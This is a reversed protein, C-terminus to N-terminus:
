RERQRTRVRRCKPTRRRSWRGQRDRRHIRGDREGMPRRRQRFKWRQRKPRNRYSHQRPQPDKSYSREPRGIGRYTRRISRHLRFYLHLHRLSNWSDDGMSIVGTGHHGDSHHWTGDSTNILLTGSSFALDTLGTDGFISLSGPQFGSVDITGMSVTGNSVFTVRGGGGDRDAEAALGSAELTGNNTISDGKLRISGGSGSGGGKNKNTTDGGNVSIKAGASITLTGSGDAALEIAGGGSGAGRSDGGGGGSGGLLHTVARDGYTLGHTTLQNMNTWGYGGYGAGGGDNDETRDKGKGPGHGDADRDGGDWGGLRGIGGIANTPNVGGDAVLSTSITIDGHNRTKLSLANTGQLTVIVSSSLNIRDATFTCIKYPYDTGDDTTYTHNSFVGALFSGDTHNITGLDTDITLGGSTFVLETVQPRLIKVTGDSGHRDGASQGGTATVNANLASEHNILSSVAEIFIRGGGGGSAGGGGGDNSDTDGQDIQTPGNGGNANINVGANIVIRDGKLYIAGGSGSAGSQSSENSNNSNNGNRGGKGGIANINGGLTLTGSSIIKISGGGTGGSAYQGGGGGSGGLLHTIDVDGYTLGGAPVAYQTGWGTTIGIVEARAGTGGYGGGGPERGSNIGDPQPDYQGAWPRGGGIFSGSTLNAPGGGSGTDVNNWRNGGHGGGLKGMLDQLAPDGAINRNQGDMGNLDLAPLITIDGISTIEVPNSGTLNVIVGDGIHVSDFTYKAVDYSITNGQLDVYTSNVLEGSGGTGDNQFWKPTPGDTDFTLTGTNVDIKKEAVFSATVDSWDEGLSNKGYVRYYYTNGPLLGSVTTENSDDIEEAHEWLLTDEGGDVSGWYLTLAVGNYQVSFDPGVNKYPHGPDLTGNLDWKHALYGEVLQRDSDTFGSNYVLVESVRLGSIKDPTGATDVRGGLVVPSNPASVLGPIGDDTDNVNTKQVGDGFLKRTTGDWVFSWLRKAVPDYDAPTSDTASTGRLITRVKTNNEKGFVWGQGDDGNKSLIADNDDFTMGEIVMFFTLKEWEDFTSKSNEVLLIDDTGDFELTPKGNFGTALYEPERESAKEYTNAFHGNGSRDGWYGVGDNDVPMGEVGTGAGKDLTATANADLWLMLDPFRAKTFDNSVDSITGAGVFTIEANITAGTGSVDRLPGNAVVPLTSANTDFSVGGPVFSLTPGNGSPTYSARSSLVIKDVKIGDERPWVNVTHVGTSPINITAVANGDMTQTYWNWTNNNSVSIRDATNKATQNLGVHVSDGAGDPGSARLWVYHTGTKVFNVNFDLRPMTPEYGTNSSKGVDPLVQMTQAGTAGGDSVLNWSLSTGGVTRPSENNNFNNAELSVIGNAGSDQIATSTAGSWVGNTAAGNFARMRYFYTTSPLLDGITEGFIGQGKDGILVSNDWAFPDLGGDNDGYYIRVSPADGGTDNLDGNFSASTATIDTAATTVIVPATAAITLNLIIQNEESESDTTGLIDHLTDDDTLNGDDDGYYVVLSVPFEGSVVPAGSINGTSSDFQLGGPLNFAAYASPSGIATVNYDFAQAAIGTINLPSTVIRPGSVKGYTVFASSAKQNDYVAKIWDASRATTAIRAEDILGNFYNNPNNGNRGLFLHATGDIVSGITGTGMSTGDAFIEASLENYVIALHHWNGSAWSSTAPRNVNSSGAGRGYLNKDNNSIFMQWGDPGTGSTGRNSLIRNNATPAAGSGWKAWLSATFVNGARGANEGFDVWDANGDLAVASGVIGATSATADGVALGHHSLYTSDPFNNAVLETFHWAGHFDNSWTSGDSAYAPTYADQANGWAAIVVTANGELEGVNIWVRSHGTVDWTEIEYPLQRGSSDFFRLDGGTSSLFSGYSFNATEGGSTTLGQHLDVLVPFSILTSNGDYGSFTLDMKFPYQSPDSIRVTIFGTASREEGASNSGTVTITVPTEGITVPNGTIEGTAANLYVGPPLGVASYLVGGGIVSINFPTMAEGVKGYVDTSGIFAPPGQFNSFSLYTPDAKQNEYTAKVWEANRTSASFTMEDITSGPSGHDWGRGIRIGTIPLGSNFSTTNGDQVGNVFVKAESNGVSAVLHFWNDGEVTTAQDITINDNGIGTSFFTQNELPM